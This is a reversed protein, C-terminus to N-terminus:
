GFNKGNVKLNKYKEIIDYSFYQPSEHPCSSLPDEYSGKMFNFIPMMTLSVDEIGEHFWNLPLISESFNYIANCGFYPDGGDMIRLYEYDKEEKPYNICFECQCGSIYENYGTICNFDLHLFHINKLITKSIEKMLYKNYRNGLSLLPKNLTYYRWYIKMAYIYIKKQIYTDLSFILRTLPLDKIDLITNRKMEDTLTNTFFNNIDMDSKLEYDYDKSCM